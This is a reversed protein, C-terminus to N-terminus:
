DNYVFINGYISLNIDNYTNKLFSKKQEIFLSYKNGKILKFTKLATEMDKNKISKSLIELTDGLKPNVNKYEM